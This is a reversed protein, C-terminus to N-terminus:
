GATAGDRAALTLAAFDSAFGVLAYRHIVGRLSPRAVDAHLATTM